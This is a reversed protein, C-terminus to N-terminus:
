SAVEEGESIGEAEETVLGGLAADAPKEAEASRRASSDSTLPTEVEEFADEERKETSHGSLSAAPLVKARLSLASACRASAVEAQGYGAEIAASRVESVFRRYGAVEPDESSGVNRMIRKLAEADYESAIAADTITEVNLPLGVRPVLDARYGGGPEIRVNLPVIVEDGWPM